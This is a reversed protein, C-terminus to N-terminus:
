ARLALRTWVPYLSLRADDSGGPGLSGLAYRSRLPDLAHGPGGTRLPRRGRGTCPGTLIQILRDSCRRDPLVRNSVAVDGFIAEDAAATTADPSVEGGADVAVRKAIREFVNQEVRVGAIRVRRVTDVLTDALRCYL